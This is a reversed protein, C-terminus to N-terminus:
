PKEGPLVGLYETAIAAKTKKRRAVVEAFWAANQEQLLRGYSNTRKSKSRHERKEWRAMKAAFVDDPLPPFLIPDEKSDM